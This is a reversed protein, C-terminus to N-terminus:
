GNHEGEPWRKAAEEQARRTLLAGLPGDRLRRELWNAGDLFADRCVRREFEEDTEGGPSAALQPRECRRCWEASRRQWDEIRARQEVITGLAQKYLDTLDNGAYIMQRLRAEIGSEPSAMESM